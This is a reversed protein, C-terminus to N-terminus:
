LCLGGSKKKDCLYKKWTQLLDGPCLDVLGGVATQRRPTFSTFFSFPNVKIQYQNGPGRRSLSCAKPNLIPPVYVTHGTCHVSNKKQIKKKKCGPLFELQGMLIKVCTPM